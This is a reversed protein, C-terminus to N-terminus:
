AMHTLVKRSEYFLRKKEQLSDSKSMPMPFISLAPFIAMGIDVKALVFTGSDREAGRV